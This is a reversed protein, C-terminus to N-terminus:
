NNSSYTYGRSRMCAMYLDSDIYEGSSYSNGYWWNGHYVNGSMTSYRTRTEQLCQYNDQDHQQQTVGVKNWGYGYYNQKTACGGIVIVLVVVYFIKM